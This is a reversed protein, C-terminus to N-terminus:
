AWGRQELEAQAAVEGSKARGRLRSKYKADHGPQFQGGRTPGGCCVCTGALAKRSLRPAGLRVATLMLEDLRADEDPDIEALMREIDRSRARRRIAADSKCRQIMQYVPDNRQRLAIRAKCELPNLCEWHEPHVGSDSVGCDLCRPHAESGCCRCLVLRERSGNRVMAPCSSHNGSACFGCRWLGTKVWVAPTGPPALQPYSLSAM